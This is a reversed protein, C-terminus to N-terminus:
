HRTLWAALPGWVLAPADAAFLLDGHGFDEEVREPGFRRVVLTSVDRSGVVTTSYIAKDGFGGAAGILFLPVTIRRLDYPVAPAAQGCWAEDTETVELNSQHPSARAFWRLIDAESSERLGTPFGDVIVGAALHYRETPNFIRYTQAAIRLAVQRNTRAPNLPSADDPATLALQGVTIFFDNPSDIFGQDQFFRDFSAFECILERTAVDAPDIAAWIDLPVVGKVGRLAPPRTADVAAAVYALFGGRSFGILHLRGPGSGTFLRALRAIAVARGIDDVEQALGMGALDGLDPDAADILAWRRDLGWVDVGEQALFVALGPNGKADLIVPAFNSGFSSFDGHLLMAGTVTPCPRWAGCERVVRHLRISAHATSGVRVTFAYHFVDGALRDRTVQTVQAGGTALLSQFAVPSSPVGTDALAVQPVVAALLMFRSLLNGPAM